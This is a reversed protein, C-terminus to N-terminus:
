KIKKLQFELEEKVKANDVIEGDSLMGKPTKYTFSNLVSIKKGKKTALIVKTSYSGMDIAIYKDGLM